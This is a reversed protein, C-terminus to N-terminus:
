VIEDINNIYDSHGSVLRSFGVNEVGPVGGVPGLGAVGAQLAM